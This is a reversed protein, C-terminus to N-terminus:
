RPRGRRLSWLGRLSLIICFMSTVGLAHLTWVFLFAGSKNAVEGFHGRAALVHIVPMALGFLSGVLIIVYGSLRDALLLTGYLWIVLIPVIVLTIGRAEPTGVRAYLTDSTMHFTMFLVSLLSMISLTLNHKM